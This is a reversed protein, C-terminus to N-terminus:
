NGLFINGDKICFLLFSVNVTLKQRKIVQCFLREPILCHWSKHGPPKLNDHTANFLQTKMTPSADSRTLCTQYGRGLRGNSGEHHCLFFFNDFAIFASSLLGACALTWPTEMLVRNIHPTPLLQSLHTQIM